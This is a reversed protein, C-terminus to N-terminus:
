DGEYMIECSKTFQMTAAIKIVRSSSRGGGQQSAATPTSLLKSTFQRTAATKSARCSGGGEDFGIYGITEQLQNRNEVVALLMLVLEDSLLQDAERGQIDM